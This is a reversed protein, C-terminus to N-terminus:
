KSTSLIGPKQTNYNMSQPVILTCLLLLLLLVRSSNSRLDVSIVARTGMTSSIPAREFGQCASPQQQQQQQISTWNDKTRRNSESSVRGRFARGRQNSCFVQSEGVYSYRRSNKKDNKSIWCSRRQVWYSPSGRQLERIAEWSSNIKRERYRKRTENM